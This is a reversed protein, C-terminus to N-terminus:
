LWPRRSPHAPEVPQSSRRRRRRRRGDGRRTTQPGGIRCQLEFRKGAFPRCDRDAGGARGARGPGTARRVTRMAIAAALAAPVRVTTSSWHRGGIGGLALLKGPLQGDTTTSPWPLRSPRRLQALANWGEGRASEESARARPWTRPPRSARQTPTQTGASTRLTPM